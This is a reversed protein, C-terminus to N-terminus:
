MAETTNANDVSSNLEEKSTVQRVYEDSIIKLLDDEISSENDSFNLEIWLGYKENFRKLKVISGDKTETLYKRGHIIIPKTESM